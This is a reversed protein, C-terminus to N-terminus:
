KKAAKYWGPGEPAVRLVRDIRSDNELADVTIRDLKEYRKLKYGRAREM